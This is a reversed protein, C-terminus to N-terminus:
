SGFIIFETSKKNKVRDRNRYEYEIPYLKINKRYKKLCAEIQNIGIKGSDSYSILLYPIHESAVILQEFYYMYSKESAFKDSCLQKQQVDGRNIFEEAFSYMRLYDSQYGGYPPDLYLLDVPSNSIVSLADENFCLHNRPDGPYLDFNWRIDEKSFSMEKGRNVLHEIRIEKKALVQGCNLRGGVFCREFIYNLINACAVMAKKNRFEGFNDIINYRCSSICEMERETFIDAYKELFPLLVSSNNKIIVDKEKAPFIVPDEQVYTILNFYPYTLIDNCIVEKDIMKFFMSVFGSGSFPDCVSSFNINNDNLVYILHPILKKKSGMYRNYIKKIKKKILPWRDYVNESIYGTNFDIQFDM